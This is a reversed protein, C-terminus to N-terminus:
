KLSLVSGDAVSAMDRADGVVFPEAVPTPDLLTTDDSLEPPRFRDYFGSADHSERGSVGFNSTSTRRRESM